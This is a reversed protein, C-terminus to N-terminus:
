LIEKPSPIRSHQFVPVLSSIGVIEVAGADMGGVGDNWKELM